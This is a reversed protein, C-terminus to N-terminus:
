GILIYFSLLLYVYWRQHGLENRSSRPRSDMKLEEWGFPHYWRLGRRSHIGKWWQISYLGTHASSQQDAKARTCKLAVCLQEDVPNLAMAKIKIVVEDDGAVPIANSVPELTGSLRGTKTYGFGRNSM